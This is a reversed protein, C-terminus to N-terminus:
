DFSVLHLRAAVECLSVIYSRLRLGGGLTFGAGGALVIWKVFYNEKRGERGM